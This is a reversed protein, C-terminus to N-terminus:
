GQENCNSRDAVIDFTEFKIVTAITLFVFPNSDSENPLTTDEDGKVDENARM